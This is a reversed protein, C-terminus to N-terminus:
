AATSQPTPRRVPKKAEADLTAFHERLIRRVYQSTKLDQKAAEQELRDKIEKPISYAAVVIQEETM